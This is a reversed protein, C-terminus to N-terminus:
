AELSILEDTPAKGCGAAACYLEVFLANKIQNPVLVDVVTCWVEQPEVALRVLWPVSEDHGSSIPMVTM